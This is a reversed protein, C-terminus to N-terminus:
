LLIKPAEESCRIHIGPITKFYGERLPKIKYKYKPMLPGQSNEDPTLPELKFRLGLRILLEIDKKNRCHARINKSSLLLKKMFGLGESSWTSQPKAFYFHLADLIINILTYSKARSDISSLAEFQVTDADIDAGALLFQEIAERARSPNNYALLLAFSLGKNKQTQTLQALDTINQIFDGPAANENVVLNAIQLAKMM